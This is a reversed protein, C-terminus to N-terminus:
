EAIFTMKHLREGRRNQKVAVDCRVEHVPPVDPGSIDFVFVDETRDYYGGNVDVAYDSYGFLLESVLYGSVKIKAM